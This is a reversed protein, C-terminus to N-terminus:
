TSDLLGIYEQVICELSDRNSINSTNINKFGNILNSMFKTKEKSNKITTCRRDQIFEKNIVIDVTLSAHNSPFHLEPHVEHNNLEISNSWLFFLIIVLNSNNKNNSYRILVQQIPLSLTLDFSNIIESIIDSHSSHFSYM